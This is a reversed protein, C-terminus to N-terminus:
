VEDEVEKMLQEYPTVVDHAAIVGLGHTILRMYVLSKAHAETPCVGSSILAKVIGSISEPYPLKVSVGAVESGWDKPNTAALLAYDIGIGVKEAMEM